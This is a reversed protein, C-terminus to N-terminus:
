AVGVATTSFREFVELGRMCYQACETGKASAAWLQVRKQRGPQQRQCKVATLSPFRCHLSDFRTAVAM